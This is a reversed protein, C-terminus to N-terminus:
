LYNNSPEGATIDNDNLWHTPWDVPQLGFLDSNTVEYFFLTKLHIYSMGYIPWWTFLLDDSWFLHGFCTMLNFNSILLLMMQASTPYYYIMLDFTPWM